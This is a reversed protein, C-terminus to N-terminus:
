FHKTRIQQALDRIKESKAESSRIDDLLSCLGKESFSDRNDKNLLMTESGILSQAASLSWELNVECDSGYYDVIANYVLDIVGLSSFLVRKRNNNRCFVYILSCVQGAIPGHAGESMRMISVLRQEIGLDDFCHAKSDLSTLKQIMDLARNLISASFNYDDLISIVIERVGAQIISAHKRDYLRNSMQPVTAKNLQDAFFVLIEIGYFVIEENSFYSKMAQVTVEVGGNDFSMNFAEPCFEKMRKDEPYM